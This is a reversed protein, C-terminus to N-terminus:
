TMFTGCYSIGYDKSALLMISDIDKIYEITGDCHTISMEADKAKVAKRKLMALAINKGENLGRNFGMNFDDDDNWVEREAKDFRKIIAKERDTM